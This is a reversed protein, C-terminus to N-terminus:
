QWCPFSAGGCPGLVEWLHRWQNSVVPEKDLPPHNWVRQVDIGVGKGANRLPPIEQGKPEGQGTSLLIKGMESCVWCCSLFLCFESMEGSLHVRHTRTVEPRVGWESGAGSSNCNCSALPVSHQWIWKIKRGVWLVELNGKKLFKNQHNSQESINQKHFKYIIQDFGINLWHFFFRFTIWHYYEHGPISWIWGPPQLSIIKLIGELGLCEMIGRSRIRHWVSCHPGSLGYRPNRTPFVDSELLWWRILM